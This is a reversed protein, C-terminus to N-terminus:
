FSPDLLVVAGPPSVVFRQGAADRFFAQCYVVLSEQGPALQPAPATVVLTGSAPITATLGKFRPQGLLYEGDYFPSAQGAGAQFSHRLWVRDGPQGTFTAQVLEDTRVPSALALSRASGAV